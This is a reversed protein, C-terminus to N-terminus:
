KKTTPALRRLEELWNQVLFLETVPQPKREGLRVMLFRQGDPSIDWARAPGGVAFENSKFLLRPKSASFGGGTHVDAVWYEDEQAGGVYFLQKGNRSWLPSVGGESSIQIEGGPGPFPRVCVEGRGSHYSMYAMWHGDPSFELYFPAGGATKSDLFSSIRRTKLDLLNGYWGVDPHLEMFALTTGNPSFSGSVQHYESTTLREMPASGDAPQWFLNPESDKWWKFAVRKGDPTWVPFDAKGEQTLQKASDRSLDYIWARWETGVTVYAIQRGDPSLRPAWFWAKFSTIPTANGKMDVWVLSDQRDPNIGGAAYVLGGSDSVSFQGAATNKQEGVNLAQMVNAVAPVPQGTLERKELNFPVCLLTGQRLFVLHGTPVYHADAADKLLVRWKRTKLDLLAVRPHADFWESMITFLVSKGDPLWRPLRHSFEGRSKDPTTLIELNGGDASVMYLRAYIGHAFVIKNDPGRKGGCLM